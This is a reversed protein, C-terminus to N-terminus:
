YIDCAKSSAVYPELLKTWVDMVETWFSFIWGPWDIFIILGSHVM